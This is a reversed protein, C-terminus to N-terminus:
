LETPMCLQIHSWSFGGWQLWEEALQFWVTIFLAEKGRFISECYSDQSLTAYHECVKSFVEDFASLILFEQKKWKQWWRKHWATTSLTCLVILQTLTYISRSSYLWYCHFNSPRIQINSLTSLYRSKFISWSTHKRKLIFCMTQSNGRHM